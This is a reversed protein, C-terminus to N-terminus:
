TQIKNLGAWGNPFGLGAHENRRDGIVWGMSILGVSTRNRIHHMAVVILRIGFGWSWIRQYADYRNTDVRASLIKLKQESAFAECTTM